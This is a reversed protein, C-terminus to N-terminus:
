GIGMLLARIDLPLTRRQVMHTPPLFFQEYCMMSLLVEKLNFCIACYMISEQGSCENQSSQAREGENTKMYTLCLEGYGHTLCIHFETRNLM